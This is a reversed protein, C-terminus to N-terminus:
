ILLPMSLKEKMIVMQFITIVACAFQQIETAM